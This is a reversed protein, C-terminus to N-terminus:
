RAQEAQTFWNQIAQFWASIQHLISSFFNQVQEWLTLPRLEVVLNELNPMLAAFVEERVRLRMHELNVPVTLHPFIQEWSRLLWGNGGIIRASWDPVSTEFEQSWIIEELVMLNSLKYPDFGVIDRLASLPLSSSSAEAFYGKELELLNELESARRMRAAVWFTRNSFLNEAVQKLIREAVAQVQQANSLGPANQALELRLHPDRNYAELLAAFGVERHRHFEKSVLSTIHPAGAFELIDLLPGDEIGVIKSIPSLAAM